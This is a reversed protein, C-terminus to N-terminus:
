INKKLYSRLFRLKNKVPLKYLMSYFLQNYYKFPINSNLKDDIMNYYLLRLTKNINQQLAKNDIVKNQIENFNYFNALNNQFDSNSSWVGSDHLRYNSSNFNLIRGLSNKLAIYYLSNDKFYKFESLNINKLVNSRFVSTLTWTRYDELLNESTVEALDQKFNPIDEEIINGLEDIKNFKTWVINYNDNAELFDVQKQLKLPDTWYDDGDCLAIYKGRCEKLASVFNPIMGINKPHNIYKICSAKPHTKLITQILLGTSDPSCDNSILLEIEFDTKQMLVGHISQEIFKEHGYTIM